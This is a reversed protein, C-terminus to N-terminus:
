SQKDMRIANQLELLETSAKEIEQKRKELLIFLLNKEVDYLSESKNNDKQTFGVNIIVKKGIFYNIIWVENQKSNIFDKLYNIREYVFFDDICNKDHNLDQIRKDLEVIFINLITQNFNKDFSLFSDLKVPHDDLENGHNSLFLKVFDFNKVENKMKLLAQKNYKHLEIQDNIEKVAKEKDTEM